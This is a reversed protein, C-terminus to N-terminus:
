RIAAGALVAEAADDLPNLLLVTTDAQAALAVARRASTLLEGTRATARDTLQRETWPQRPRGSATLGEGNATATTALYARVLEYLALTADAAAADGAVELRAIDLAALIEEM